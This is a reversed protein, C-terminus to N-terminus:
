VLRRSAVCVAGDLLKRLGRTENGLTIASGGNLLVKLILEVRLMILAIVITILTLICPTRATLSEESWYRPLWSLHGSTERWLWHGKLLVFVVLLINPWVNPIVM